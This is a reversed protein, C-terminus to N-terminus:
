LIKYKVLSLKTKKFSQNMININFFTILEYYDNYNYEIIMKSDHKIPIKKENIKRMKIM